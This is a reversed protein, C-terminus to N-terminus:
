NLVDEPFVIYKTVIGRQKLYDLIRKEGVLTLMVGPRERVILLPVGKYGLSKFYHRASNLKVELEEPVDIPEVEEESELKLIEQFINDVKKGDAVMHAIKQMDELRSDLPILFWRFDGPNNIALNAMVKSCHGCHLSFFLYFKPWDRAEKGSWSFVTVESLKPIKPIFKLMSNATFGGSWVALGLAVITVSRRFWALSILSFFLALGVGICLACREKLALFQFGLLGGDFALSGFLLTLSTAWLWKKDYRCAFFLFLWLICFFSAGLVILFSEGFRVYEGVIQCSHTTCLSTKRAYKLWIDACLILAALAPPLQVLIRRWNFMRMEM